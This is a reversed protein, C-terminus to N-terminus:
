GRNVPYDFLRVRANGAFRGVIEATGDKSGDSAIAIELKELPYDLALANRIKDEIVDAENYAAVLISVFPEVAKKRPPRRFVASLIALLLPYGAYVYGVAAAAVWFVAEM